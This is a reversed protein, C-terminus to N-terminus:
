GLWWGGRGRGACKAAGGQGLEAEALGAGGRGDRLRAFPLRKEPAPMGGVGLGLIWQKRRRRRLLAVGDAAGHLMRALCGDSPFLFFIYPLPYTHMFRSAAM